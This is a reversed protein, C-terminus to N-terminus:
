RELRHCHRFGMQREAMAALCDVLVPVVLAVAVVAVTVVRVPIAVAPVVRARHCQGAVIRGLTLVLVVGKPAEFGRIVLCRRRLQWCRFRDRRCRLVRHDDLSQLINVKRMKNHVM